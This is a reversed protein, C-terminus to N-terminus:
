PAKGPKHFVHQSAAGHRAFRDHLYLNAVFENVIERLGSRHDQRDIDVIRPCRVDHDRVIRCRVGETGIVAYRIPEPVPAAADDRRRQSFACRLGRLQSPNLFEPRQPERHVAARRQPDAPLFARTGAPCGSNRSPGGKQLRTAATRSCLEPNPAPAPSRRKQAYDCRRRNDATAGWAFLKPPM